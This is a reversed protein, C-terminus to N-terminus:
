DYLGENWKQITQIIAKKPAIEGIKRVTKVEAGCKHCRIIYTKTHNDFDDDDRMYVTEGCKCLNIRKFNTM